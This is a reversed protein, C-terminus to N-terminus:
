IATIASHRVISPAPEFVPKCVFVSDFNEPNCTCKPYSPLKQQSEPDCCVGLNANSGLGMQSTVPTMTAEHEKKARTIVSMAEKYEDSNTDIPYMEGVDHEVNYLLPSSHIWPLTSLGYYDPRSDVHDELLAERKLCRSDGVRDMSSCQTVYHAKYAGCRVAWLGPKPEDEQVPFGKSPVGKYHFLCKHPSQEDRLLVGSLDKGDIVRDKPLEGGSLAVATAFIDPIQALERSIAGAAVKGPWRVIGPVRIGGEWTTTKGEFFPGASGGSLKQTLWPGNDSTFFILTDDDAGSESLGRMLAGISADMEAMADGFRGRQSKSCFKNSAYDPIHVHSCAFYLLFPTSEAVSKKIFQVAKAAYREDLTNLDVPQEVVTLNHMLPLATQAGFANDMWATKAMDVSYPIGFYEDFGRSTPLFKPQQGVHWKGIALSSYGQKGLIDAFTTENEPLGGIADNSFVGGVWTSGACGVRTPLRGTLMSARSPSCVHFASYFQTFRTGENALKDINPTFITPHGAYSTDGYGMDDALIIIINPKRDDSGDFAFCFYPIFLGLTRRLCMM